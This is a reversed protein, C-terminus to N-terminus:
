NSPLRQLFARVQTLVFGEESIFVFHNAGPMEIVQVPAAATFLNRVRQRSLNVEAERLAAVRRVGEADTPPYKKMREELAPPFWAFAVIPAHILSYDRKRGGALISDAIAKPTKYRGVSGDENNEYLQRLEAEPWEVSNREKLWRRYAGFSSRDAVSGPRLGGNWEPLSRIAPPLEQIRANFETYDDRPDATADLYVLGAIRDSHQAGMATLEDGGISHAMLVPNSLHLSELVALVDDALRQEDYGSAPQDSAGYGRRTIGYVHCFDSLREAFYDFVHASNGLGPLLVVSRGSGGWDLVELRVGPQVAVFQVKHKSPDRFPGDQAMAAVSWAFVLLTTISCYAM